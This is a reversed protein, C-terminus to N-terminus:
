GYQGYQESKQQEVSSQVFKEVVHRNGFIHCLFHHFIKTSYHFYRPQHRKNSNSFDDSSQQNNKWFCSSQTSHNNKWYRHPNQESMDKIFVSLFVSWHKFLFIHFECCFCCQLNLLRNILNKIGNYVRFM